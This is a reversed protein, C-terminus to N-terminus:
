ELDLADADQTSQVHGATTAGGIAYLSEKLATVAVGHRASPLKPLPSWQARRIDYSQVADSASTSSEGGVTILRGAVYGAGVSGTPTPMAKLETWSNSAPDYRELAGLNNDASLERGGVAYVYRGDSAAGLHERPTPIEAVDTWSEGDFVETQAVLKGDAQGGVVVIKDGVVAAAAAARPHNLRPLDEWVGGRLVYVRDSQESTPEDGPVFGGIVVAEGGYTVAMFHHLPRPLKPGTTWINIARDYAATDASATEGEGLGGFLWVRGGVATSAAYQRPFPADRIARWKVDATAPGGDAAGSLDLVEATKTSEFHGPVTAGGVAYLTDKLATLAVGHRASPLNPLQSWRQKQIEYAQVADSASTSSEGGVTILRGGAYAAGLSGSATPMGELKTWSDSAPDYRELAGVNEDASLERGGVAYLYRGDSAAGLHERPTPMEAVDKWSEGDFVETQPVLKGDAQGGVVVIKDGVVAAAAAARPHNLRPLAEWAGDRLAFVRDSQESTLEEGPVFGGIVVPEGGYTVAMFHHLALPLGPGTTWRDAGPDYIKTTTSSSKVGVGGLVWLKGDVATSAAYQRRFPADQIARWELDAPLKTAAAVGTPSGSQDEDGGGGTILLVAAIVVALGLGALAALVRTDRRPRTPAAGTPAAEAVVPGAAPVGTSSRDAERPGPTPQGALHGGTPAVPPPPPPQSGVDTQPEAPGPQAATEPVVAESPIPGADAAGPPPATHQTEAAPPQAPSHTPEAIFVDHQSPVDVAGAARTAQLADPGLEASQEAVASDVAAALESAKSYRENPDKATARAVVDDFAQVLEPRKLSPSPPPDTVHAWLKAMDNDKPFAVSGTLMEYLVCGLSYVDARGDVTQAQIQEPAVYDPTGVWAGTRTLSGASGLRKTLGFDTLYVHEHEGEGSILINAPKVDRHVLGREHAADLAAAVSAIVRQIRGMDLQGRDVVLRLNTGPVFRMALYLVGHYEGGRHIPVINPHELSAALRAEAKFRTVADPNQTHEPAIIKLAVVRDLEPDSARYVVGMGGRDLMGEIRYGAFLSGRELRTLREVAEDV